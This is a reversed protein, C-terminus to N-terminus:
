HFPIQLSVGARRLSARGAIKLLRRRLLASLVVAWGQFGCLDLSINLTLLHDSLVACLENVPRHEDEGEFVHVDLKIRAVELGQSVGTGDIRSHADGIAPADQLGAVSGQHGSQLVTTTRAGALVLPVLILPTPHVNSSFGPQFSTGPGRCPSRM